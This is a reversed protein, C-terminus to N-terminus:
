SEYIGICGRARPVAGRRVAASLRIVRAGNRARTTTPASTEHPALSLRVDTIWRWPGRPPGAPRDTESRPLLVGVPQGHADVPSACGVGVAMAEPLSQGVTWVLQTSARELRSGSGHDAPTAM